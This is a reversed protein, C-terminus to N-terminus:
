NGCPFSFGGRSATGCLKADKCPDAPLTYTYGRGPKGAEAPPCISVGKAACSTTFYSSKCTKGGQDEPKHSMFCCGTARNGIYYKGDQPCNKSESDCM